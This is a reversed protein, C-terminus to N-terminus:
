IGEELLSKLVTPRQNVAAHYRTLAEWAPLDIKVNALWRLMVFLYADPLSFEDGMLYANQSLHKDIYDLKKELNPIFINQKEAESVQNNFLPGFSKHIDSSLFSLWELVRYRKFDKVAPLLTTGNYTDALYQQIAVNETLIQKNDLQLAPVVGKPNIILYDGGDAMKKTALNVAMYECDLGLENIVIHTSLSCAGKSYFLKM